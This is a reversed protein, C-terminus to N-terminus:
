QSRARLAIEAELQRVMRALRSWEPSQRSIRDRKAILDAVAKELSRCNDLSLRQDAANEKSRDM